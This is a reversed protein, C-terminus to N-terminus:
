RQSPGSWYAISKQEEKSMKTVIWHAYYLAVVDYVTHCLMPIALNDFALYLGGFYLSALTAAHLAGFVLSSVVLAMAPGLRSTLEYQFVGRFLWEESVGAALGLALATVVAYGPKFTGGLLTLVSRQTAKTVDQLAPFREELTDLVAAMGGLPLTSAAGWALAQWNWEFGSGLGIQPTGLVYAALLAVGMLASQGTILSFTLKQDFLDDDPFPDRSSSSSPRSQWLTLYRSSPAYQSGSRSVHYKSLEFPKTVHRGNNYDIASIRDKSLTTAKFLPQSSWAHVAHSCRHIAVLRYLLAAWLTDSWV